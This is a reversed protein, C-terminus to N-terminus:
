SLHRMASSAVPVPLASRPAEDWIAASEPQKTSPASVGLLRVGARLGGEPLPGSLWLISTMATFGRFVLAIEVGPRLCQRLEGALRSQNAEEGQTSSANFESDSPSIQIVLDTHTDSM